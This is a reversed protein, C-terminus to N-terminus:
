KLPTSAHTDKIFLFADFMKALNLTDYTSKDSKIGFGILRLPKALSALKTKSPSFYLSPINKSALMEDWSGVIPKALPYTKMLNSNTPRVDVTGAFTGNATGTGLVFYNNPFLKLLYSGTGGVTGAYIKTKGMHANHAWIIMKSNSGKLIMAANNAMLSDRDGEATGGYFPAFGQKLNTLAQQFEGKLVPSLQLNVMQKEISDATIYGSKSGSRLLKWDIKYSKDNMGIWAEDQLSAAQYLSKVAPMLTLDQGKTLVSILMEVDPKLLPFDLGSLTVKRQHTANCQKVWDLMEKTEENQWISMLHSKMLQGLNKTKSIQQNLAWVDSLDNEFAIYDFGQEEVLIRSIWYRVKYFEATGHTGEGLGVVRKDSMEKILPAINVKFSKYDKLSIAKIEQASLTTDETTSAKQQAVISSSHFLIAMMAIVNNM